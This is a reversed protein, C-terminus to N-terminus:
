NKGMKGMKSKLTNMTKKLSRSAMSVDDALASTAKKAGKVPNVSTMMVTNDLNSAVGKGSKIALAFAGTAVM